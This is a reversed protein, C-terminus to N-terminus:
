PKAAPSYSHTRLASHHPILHLTFQFSHPLFNHQSIQPVEGVKERFLSFSRISNRIMVPLREASIQAHFNGFVFPGRCETIVRNHGHRADARSSYSPLNSVYVTSHSVTPHYDTIFKSPYPPRRQRKSVNDRWDELCISSYETGSRLILQPVANQSEAQGSRLM